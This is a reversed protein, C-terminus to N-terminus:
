VFTVIDIDNKVNKDKDWLEVVAGCLQGVDKRNCIMIKIFLFKIGSKRSKWTSSSTTSLCAAVKM